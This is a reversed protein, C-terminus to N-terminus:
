IGNHHCYIFWGRVKGLMLGLGCLAVLLLSRIVAFKQFTASFWEGRTSSQETQRFVCLHFHSKLYIQGQIRSDEGALWQWPSCADTLDMIIIIDKSCNFIYIYSYNNTDESATPSMWTHPGWPGTKSGPLMPHSPDSQSLLEWLLMFCCLWSMKISVDLLHRNVIVSEALKPYCLLGRGEVQPGLWLGASCRSSDRVSPVIFCIDTISALLQM